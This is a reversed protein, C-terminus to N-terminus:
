KKRVAKESKVKCLKDVLVDNIMAHLLNSVTRNQSKAMERFKAAQTITVLTQLKVDRLENAQM